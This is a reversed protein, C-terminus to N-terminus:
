FSLRNNAQVQVVIAHHIQRSGAVGRIDQGDLKYNVNAFVSVNFGEEHTTKRSLCSYKVFISAYHGLANSSLYGHQPTPHITSHLQKVECCKQQLPTTGFADCGPHQLYFATIIRTSVTTNHQREQPTNQSHLWNRRTRKTEDKNKENHNTRLFM